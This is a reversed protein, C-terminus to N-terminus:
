YKSKRDDFLPDVEVHACDRCKYISSKNDDKDFDYRQFLMANHHGCAPCVPEEGEIRVLTVRQKRARERRVDVPKVVVSGDEDSVVRWADITMTRKCLDRVYDFADFVSAFAEREQNLRLWQKSSLMKIEVRYM